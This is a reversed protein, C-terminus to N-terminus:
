NSEALQKAAAYSPLYEAQLIYAYRALAYYYHKILMESRIIITYYKVLM